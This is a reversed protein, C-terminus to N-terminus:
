FSCNSVGSPVNKSVVNVILSKSHITGDPLVNAIISNKTAAIVECTTVIIIIVMAM